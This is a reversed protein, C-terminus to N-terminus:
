LAGFKAADARSQVMADVAKAGPCARRANCRVLITSLPTAFRNIMLPGRARDLQEWVSRSLHWDTSKEKHSLHDAWKNEVSAMWTAEMGLGRTRPQRRLRIVDRLLSPFRSCLSNVVAKM